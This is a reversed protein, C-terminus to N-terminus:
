PATTDEAPPILVQLFDLFDQLGAMPDPNANPYTEVTGDVLSLQLGDQSNGLHATGVLTEDSYIYGTVGSLYLTMANESSNVQSVDISDGNEALTFVYTKDGSSEEITRTVTGSYTLDEQVEALLAEWDPTPAEVTTDIFSLAYQKAVDLIPELGAVEADTSAVMSPIGVNQSRGLTTLTTTDDLKLLFMPAGSISSSTEGWSNERSLTNTEFIFVSADPLSNYYTVGNPREEVPTANNVEVRDFFFSTDLNSLSYEGISSDTSTFKLAGTLSVKLRINRILNNLAVYADSGVTQVNTYAVANLSKFADMLPAPSQTVDLVLCTNQMTLRATSNSISGSFCIPFPSAIFDNGFRDGGLLYRIDKVTSSLSYTQGDVTGSVSLDCSDDDAGKCNRLTTNLGTYNETPEVQCPTGFFANNNEPVCLAAQLGYGLVETVGALMNATNEQATADAYLWGLDRNTRDGMANEAATAAAYYGAAVNIPAMARAFDTANYGTMEGITTVNRCETRDLEPDGSLCVAPDAEPTWSTVLSDFGAVMSDLEGGNIHAAVTKANAVITDFGTYSIETTCDELNLSSVDVTGSKLPMQGGLLGFILGINRSVTDVSVAETVATEQLAAAFIAHRMVEENSSMAYSREFSDTIDIMRHHVWSEDAFNMLKALRRQALLVNNDDLAKPFSELWNAAMNTMPTVALAGAFDAGSVITDLTLGEVPAGSDGFGAVPTLVCGSPTDCVMSSEITTTVRVRVPASQTGLDFGFYGNDDTATTGIVAWTHEGDVLGTYVAAEVDANALVGKVARGAVASEAQVEISFSQTDADSGDSVSVVVDVTGASEPVWRIEGTDADITMGAPPNTLSFTVADNEADSATVDYAYVQNETVTTVATSTVMPADNVASVNVSVTTTGDATGDTVTVTFSDTGYFDVAPDYSFTSGEQTVVGNLAGTVTWTLDDGDVDTANLTVSGSTDEQINLAVSAGEAIEPADNVPNVTINVTIDDTLEGTDTVRITFSDSGNFDKVPVYRVVGTLEDLSLGGHEVGTVVKWTLADGDADTATLNLTAAGDEDLIMTTTAGQDIVPAVNVSEVTVNVTIRDDNEGDSVQVEFSDNGVFGEAPTYSIVKSTGTGVVSANGNTAESSISWQLEAAANDEDTANLVLAFAQPSGDESMTVSVSEGQEIVPADNVATVTITFTQTMSGGATDAVVLEVIASIDDNGPTWTLQGTVPDVDMEAPARAVGWTLTDNEADTATPTYSYAEGETAETIATSTIEPLDNVPTVTMTIQITDSNAGDSVKVGFTATGNFDAAPSYSVMQSAGTGSVAAIGSSAPTEISWTLTDGDADTANLAFTAQTDEATTQALEAGETIVPADAIANVTVNVLVSDTLEGPDSVTVTFSDSGNFDASPAYNVVGGDVTVTGHAAGAATWSLVDGDDDSATLTISGALDEDTSLAVTEAGAIVPADNEATVTITFSQTVELVGDSVVLMVEGSTVGNAPTWTIRGNADIEMGDPHSTLSYTLASNEADTAVVQYVYETDEAAVTVPTSTIEPADNVPKVVITFSQTAELPGDSVVVSVAASSVGEEPTWSIAGTTADIIMDEPSVTLSYTLSDGDVDSAVVTYSYVEDETAETNAESTIEPADNAANVTVNIQVTDAKDGDSVEVTLSDSGNFDEEPTYIVLGDAVSATGHEPEVSVSWSLETSDEDTANVTVTGTNDEDTTLTLSSEAIVPADNVATVTIEFSQTVPELGDSAEVVVAASTVGEGPTWSIVGSAADITMGDPHTVLRYTLTNGDADTATVPYTYLTDETATVVPTSTFVPADNTSTVSIDFSQQADLVGDSVVITVAAASVDNGPTWSILGTASVTMGDPAATLRYTLDDGDADAAVVQYTYLEGQIATTIASSDIVPADSAPAVTVNVTIVDTAIADSVQVTFSADGNYDPAPTYTVVGNFVSATGNAPLDRIAWILEDGDDDTAHLTVSGAVDETTGITATDGETIVPADNVGGVQITFTQTASQSSDEAKVTVTASTVGNAPTWRILGTAADITMSAPNQTLSWTLDDNEADSAAAQYTYELDETATLPATSTIVPADNVPTVVITFSQTTTALLDSVSVTVDASTEGEVPTWSIVGTATDITMGEPADDSLSYTLADGDVDTANVDYEYAVDETATTKAVSTIVPADNAASVTVNVTVSSSVTGDSVEVTFSDSGSFDPAPTYIVTQSNGSGSVVAEGNAPKNGISWTLDDNEADTATLTVEVAIDETTGANVAAGQVIVPADNVPTVTITFTQTVTEEADEVAITVEAETEGELPVWTLRGTDANMQMGEPGSVLSYTLADGDEDEAVVSYVYQVDETATIEADTIIVPADNVQVVNITFTQSTTSSGDSVNVTAVESDKDGAPTWSILGTASDISMGEPADEGLSWELVDNEVDTATAAYTYPQDETASVPATSTIVPADNVTAVTVTVLMSASASGDSVTVEFSDTGSFNNNPQYGVLGIGSVGAIGYEPESTISWSLEDGDEDTATLRVEVPTDENTNLSASNGQGIVPAKNNDRVEIAWSVSASAAGDEGGDAVSVEATVNGPASPTWEILGSASVTMGEPGSVLTFTLGDISDDSDTVNLQQSYTQGLIVLAAPTGNIVPADNVSNVTVDYSRTVPEVGSELGDRVEVVVTEVYSENSGSEGPTWSILGSESITMGEPAQTLAYTLDDLVVNGEGDDGAIDTVDIQASYPTDETAEPLSETVIVPAENGDVLRLTWGLSPASESGVKWDEEGDTVSVRIRLGSLRLLLSPEAPVQWRLLGTSSITVGYEEPTGSVYPLDVSWILDTGNNADDPDNVEFQYTFISGIVASSPLMEETTVFEPKDNVDDNALTVNLTFAQTNGRVQLGSAYVVGVIVDAQEVTGDPTWTILGNEDIIMGDPAQLLTFTLNDDYETVVQYKWRMGENAVLEPESTIALTLSPANGPDTIDPSNPNEADDSGGGGGGSCAAIAVVLPLLLANRIHSLATDERNV